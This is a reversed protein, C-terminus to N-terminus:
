KRVVKLPMMGKIALIERIEDRSFWQANARTSFVIWGDMRWNCCVYKDSSNDVGNRDKVDNRKLLFEGRRSEQLIKRNERLANAIEQGNKFIRLSNLKKWVEEM